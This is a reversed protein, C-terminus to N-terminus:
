AMRVMRAIFFGEIGDRNPLFQVTGNQARARLQEPLYSM